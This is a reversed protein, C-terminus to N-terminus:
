SGTTSGGEGPDEGDRGPNEGGPGRNKGVVDKGGTESRPDFYLDEHVRPEKKAEVEKYSNLIQVQKGAVLTVGAIKECEEVIDNIEMLELDINMNALHCLQVLMLQVPAATNRKDTDPGFARYAEIMDQAVAIGNCAGDWAYLANAAAKRQEPTVTKNKTKKSM